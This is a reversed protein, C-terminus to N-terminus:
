GPLFCPRWSRRAGPRELPSAALLCLLKIARLALNRDPEEFMEAAAREYYPCSPMPWALLSEGNTSATM